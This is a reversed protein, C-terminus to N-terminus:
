SEEGALDILTRDSLDYARGVIEFAVAESTVHDENNNFSHRDNFDFDVQFGREIATSAPLRLIDSHQFENRWTRYNSFAVNFFFRDDLVEVRKVNLDYLSNPNPDNLVFSSLQCIIERDTMDRAPITVKWNLGVFCPNIIDCSQLAMFLLPIKSEIYPRRLETSIQYDESFRVALTISVQSITIRSFGHKSDFTLRPIEVPLEDPIGLVTPPGYKGEFADEFKHDLRRIDRRHPFIISIGAEMFKPQELM